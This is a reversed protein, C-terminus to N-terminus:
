MGGEASESVEMIPFVKVALIYLLTGLGMLGIIVSFEVWTPSYSGAGYPLLTGHTQSPVVILYRKAIAAVNVLLGSIVTVLISYKGKAFQIFLLVTPIVLAALGVWFIEAYEGSIVATSIKAEHPSAAYTVTLWEVLMFYLYLLTLVM